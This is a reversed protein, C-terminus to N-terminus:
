RYALSLDMWYVLQGVVIHQCYSCLYCWEQFITWLKIYLRCVQVSEFAITIHLYLYLIFMWNLSSPSLLILFRKGFSLVGSSFESLCPTVCTFPWLSHPQCTSQTVDLGLSCTMHTHFDHLCLSATQVRRVWFVETLSSCLVWVSKGLIGIHCMPIENRAPM